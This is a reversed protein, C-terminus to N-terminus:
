ELVTTTAYKEFSEWKDLSNEEMLVALNNKKRYQKWVRYLKFCGRYYEPFLFLQDKQVATHNMALFFRYAFLDDVHELKLIGRLILPALGELYVLYNVFLQRNDDDIIFNDSQQLMSRELLKEVQCMNPDQIFVQNYQLIFQAEEIDNQRDEVSQSIKLQYLVLGAAIAGVVGEIMSTVLGAQEESFAAFTSDAVLFMRSIISILLALIFIFLSILVYRVFHPEHKKRNM